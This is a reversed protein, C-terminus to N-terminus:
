YLYYGALWATELVGWAGSVREAGREMQRAGVRTAHLVRAWKLAAASGGTLVVGVTGIFCGAKDDNVCDIATSALGTASAAVLLAPAAAPYVRAAVIAVATYTVSLTSFYVSANAAQRRAHYERWGSEDVTTQVKVAPAHLGRILYGRSAWRAASDASLEGTLDFKNIPDAPYDYNNTVGGEIPDVELFRGLAPVYQRAGMEITHISGAHETLKRHQGLWGWDADGPLTDPGADDATSTGIQGTTPDIPQGFPDYRHVGASRAGAADATVTIDGHINPYSWTETDVATTVTVGGPLGTVRQIINNQGDLILAPADGGGTSGYRVTTTEPSQGGTTQKREVIRGTVDRLYEVLTGDDFSTSIHQDTSDYGLTQDALTTTNGHADYKLDTAALGDAVPNTGAPTGTVATTILRDTHDYCYSTSIPTGGEPTDTATTRNGNMGAAQNLAPDCGTTPGFEYSLTHGPIVAEVLRGAGDFQYRSPYATTGDTLTNAVIRGTQSRLVTDTVKAQNNPFLWSMGVMAGTPDRHLDTLASGNAYTVGSLRGTTYAPDALQTGDVTVTEPQGDLNYTVQTTSAPGGPPTVTSSTAQGLQNYVTTTTVGWVDTYSVVRGLLDSETTIRGAPDDAWGTLPDGGAAYTFTATRPDGDGYAPYHVSQPRGRDDLTTCTWDTDGTRKTGVTRGLRDYVYFTEVAQGTAPVPQRISKAMGAQNTGAPVSCTTAALAEQDGYYTTITGADPATPNGAPLHRTTRRLYGTGEPEYGTRTTLALGGPDLISERALGLWPTSGYGTAATLDPAATDTVGLSNAPVSDETLSSTVLNYGPALASGPITEETGGPRTWTLRLQADGTLELYHLRIRATQGATANVIVENSWAASQAKWNDIKIVDDLWLQTGDNSYTRLKYTGTTPFTILGTLRLSWNDAPIDPVPATTGWQKNVEGTAPGVGLRYVKPAGSLNKNDYYAAALGPLQGDYTQTTHAPTVACSTYPIRTIPDFCSAPAPGYTDTVRNQSDYVTTSKTEWPDTQSLVLDKGTPDWETAATLGTASRDSAQRLVTDYTVTRAHGNSPATNPVSLGAVDVYTTRAATDYTYTKVPRNAATLGDPAALSVSAVRGTSDYSIETRSLTPDPTPQNEAYWDSQLSDRIATLKGTTTDYGFAASAGGPDIIRAIQGGEYYLIRTTDDQQAAPDHGPYFIRCLHQDPAKGYETSPTPCATGTGPLGLKELTDDGYALIVERTYGPSTYTDYNSPASTSKSTPDSIRSLRGDARYKLVPNAPKRVDAAPTVSQLKGDTRFTYVTGAADVLVPQGNADVSATDVEGPPPTYGGTSTKVHTHPIGSSDTFTLATETVRVSQYANAGAIPSSSTWGEPLLPLSRSFWDAPVAHQRQVGDKTYRVWLQAYAWGTVEFYSLSFKKPTTDSFSRSGAWEVSGATSSVTYKDFVLQDDIYLKAGDERSMGFEYTGADPVRIYGDWRVIFHDSPISPSPSGAGWDFNVGPDTRVLVPTRSGHEIHYDVGATATADYYTGTLGLNSPQQSNYRFTLGMPGGVTTVTPSSFGLAANGNALNVTVPGAADMPSPGSAGLRLNVTFRNVWTNVSEGYADKTQVRWTYAGGDQLVGEPVKWTTGAQWPSVAVAGTKGDPGTAVTFRYSDPAAGFQNTAPPVSLTPQLETLVVGDAPVSPGRAPDAPQRVTFSYVPTVRETSTGHDGSYADAVFAKWYYTTGAQLKSAPVKAEDSGTWGTEWVPASDITTPSTGVRFLFAL